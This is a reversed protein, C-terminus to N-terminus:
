AARAMAARVLAVARGPQALDAATIRVVYWGAAALAHDQTRDKEQQLRLAHWAGDYLVVVRQALVALDVRLVGVDTRIRHQVEVDVGARVLLVRLVSEPISEARPDVLPVAERLRAVGHDRRGLLWRELRPVRVVGRRVLEDLRGVANPLPQRAAADFAIREPSALRTTCWPRGPGLASRSRRATVGRGAPHRGCQQALVVEVDDDWRLWGLGLVTAATAGTLLAESPLVLGVGEARLVHDRRVDSPAYVDPAVRVFAPGHLQRWTAARQAVAHSGCFVRPFGSASTTM